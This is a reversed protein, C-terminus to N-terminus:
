KNLEARNREGMEEEKVQRYCSCVKCIKTEQEDTWLCSENWTGEGRMKKGTHWCSWTFAIAGREEHIKWLDLSCRPTFGGVDDVYWM